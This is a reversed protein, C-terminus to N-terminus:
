VLNKLVSRLYSEFSDWSDNSTKDSKLYSNSDTKSPKICSNDLYDSSSMKRTTIMMKQQHSIKNYEKVLNQLEATKDNIQKELKNLKDESQKIDEKRACVSVCKSMEVATPYAKGCLPCVYDM